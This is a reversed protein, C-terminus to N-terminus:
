NFDSLNLRGLRIMELKALHEQNAKDILEVDEDSIHLADAIEVCPYKNCRMEYM